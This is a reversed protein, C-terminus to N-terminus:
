GVFMQAFYGGDALYALGMERYNGNLLNKRHGESNMWARVVSEADHYGMALNEGAYRYSIEEARMMDFASGYTPSQHAFYHKERMDACKKDCLASLRANLKLAGAGYSARYRNVARLVQEAMSEERQAKEPEASPTVSPSAVQRSGVFYSRLRSLLTVASYRVAEYQIGAASARMGMPLALLAASLLLSAIKKATTKKMKM